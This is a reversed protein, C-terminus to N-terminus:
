REGEQPISQDYDCLIGWAEECGRVVEARYGNGKAWGLFSEQLPSVVGGSQRKFELALGHFGGRPVLYLVDSVGARVGQAKLRAATSKHRHGGNPVSFIWRLDPCAGSMSDCRAFFAAQEEEETPATLRKPRPAALPEFDARPQVIGGAGQTVVSGSHMRAEDQAAQNAKRTEREHWKEFGGAAQIDAATVM